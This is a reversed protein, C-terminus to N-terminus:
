ANPSNLSAFEGHYLPAAKDYAEKAEQITPFVGIQKPKGNLTITARYKDKQRTLCVGKVGLKNNSRVPQNRSNEAHTALRLNNKQNDLRNGSRHDVEIGEPASMIERHMWITVQRKNVYIVRAAYGHTISGSYRWRFQSLRPFDDDDVMAVRGRTLQILKM